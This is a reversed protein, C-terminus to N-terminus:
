NRGSQIRVDGSTTQIVIRNGQANAGHVGQAHNRRSSFTLDSDFFTVINGSSTSTMFEFENETSITIGVYGSSSNVNLTGALEELSLQVDGSATEISGEGKQMAIQVDGSQTNVQFGGETSEAMIDGSSTSITRSGDGELVKVNGSTTVTQVDGDAYQVDVDGSTTKFQANGTLTGINLYGSSSETKVEGTLEKINIDGSSTKLQTDGTITGITLYGSSSEINTKGSLEKLDVDGSSTKISIEGASHDENADIKEMKVYGSATHVFVNEAAVSPFEVDGSSSTISVDKESKIDLESIIDGSATELLLEGHYSVPLYVETYHRNYFGGDFYFLHFGVSSYNRRAGKIELSNENVKIASLEKESMEISSYERITIADNESEYLYIDNSNMSYLISISDIGELPIERELVLQVNTYGQRNHNRFISGGAMVYVMIGCLSFTIVTLVLILIIKLSKM